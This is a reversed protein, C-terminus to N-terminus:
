QVDLRAPKHGIGFAQRALREKTMIEYIIWLRGQFPDNTKQWTNFTLGPVKLKPLILSDSLGNQKLL